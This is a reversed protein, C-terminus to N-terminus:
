ELFGMVNEIPQIFAFGMGRERLGGMSVVIDFIDEAQEQKVAILVIEKEGKIFLGSVGIKERVGRGRAEFVTAAQAGKRLAEDIIRDGKGKEVICTILKANM